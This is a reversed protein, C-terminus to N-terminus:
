GCRVVAAPCRQLVLCDRQRGRGPVSPSGDRAPTLDERTELAVAGRGSSAGLAADSSAVCFAPPVSATQGLMAGLKRSADDIEWCRRIGGSHRELAQFAQTEASRPVSGRFRLVHRQVVAIGQFARIPGSWLGEGDNNPTLLIEGLM